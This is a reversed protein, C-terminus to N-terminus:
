SELDNLKRLIYKIFNVLLLLLSFSIIILLYFLLGLEGGGLGFRGSNAKWIEFKNLLFLLCVQTFFSLIYTIIIKSSIYKKRYKFLLFFLFFILILITIFLAGDTYENIMLIMIIFNLINVFVTLLEM